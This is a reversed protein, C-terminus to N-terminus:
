VTELIQNLFEFFASNMTPMFIPMKNFLNAGSQIFPARVVEDRCHDLLEFIGEEKSELHCQFGFIRDGVQFIQNQCAESSAMLVAGPPLDFTQGHWHFVTLEDPFHDFHPADKAAKTFKIPFWGIETYPNAKVQAGLAKAILQAGLCIGLVTKNAAIAEKIFNLEFELWPHVDLDDVSMPGGLVILWDIDSIKPFSSYEHLQSSTVAFQNDLLWDEIRGLDEFPVHQLYHARLM